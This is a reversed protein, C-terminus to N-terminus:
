AYFGPDWAQRDRWITPFVHLKHSKCMKEGLFSIVQLILYFILISLTLTVFLLFLRGHKQRCYTYYYSTGGQEFPNTKWPPAIQQNLVIIIYFYSFILLVFCIVLVLIYLFFFGAAAGASACRGFVTASDWLIAGCKSKKALLADFLGRVWWISWFFASVDCRREHLVSLYCFERSRPQYWVM